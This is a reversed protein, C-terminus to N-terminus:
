GPSSFITITVQDTGTRVSVNRPFETDLLHPNKEDKKSFMEEFRFYRMTGRQYFWVFLANRWDPRSKKEYTVNWIIIVCRTLQTKQMRKLSLFKNTKVNAKKRVNEVFSFICAFYYIKLRTKATIFPSSLYLYSYLSMTILRIKQIKQMFRNPM